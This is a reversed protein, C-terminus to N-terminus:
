LTFSLLSWHCLRTVILVNQFPYEILGRPQGIRTWASRDVGIDPWRLDNGSVALALLVHWSFNNTPLPFDESSGNSASNWPVELVFKIKARCLGEAGMQIAILDIIASLWTQFIDLVFFCLSNSSLTWWPKRSSKSEGSSCTVYVNFANPHLCFSHDGIQQVACHAPHCRNGPTREALMTRQHAFMVSYTEKMTEKWTIKRWLKAWPLRSFAKGRQHVIKCAESSAQSRIHAHVLFSLTMTNWSEECLSVDNALTVIDHFRKGVIKWAEGRQRAKNVASSTRCINMHRRLFQEPSHHIRETALLCEQSPIHTMEPTRSEPFSLFYSFLRQPVEADKAIKRCTLQHHGLHDFIDGAHHVSALPLLSTDIIHNNANLSESSHFRM